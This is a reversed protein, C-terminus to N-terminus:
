RRAEAVLRAVRAESVPNSPDGDEKLASGVVVGDAGAALFDEVSDPTVGSGVFVPM